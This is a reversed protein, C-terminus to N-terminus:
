NIIEQLLSKRVSIIEGNIANVSRFGNGSFPDAYGMRVTNILEINMFVDDESIINGEIIGKRAHKWKM